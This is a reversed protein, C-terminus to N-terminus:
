FVIAFRTERNITLFPDCSRKPGLVFPLEQSDPLSQLSYPVYQILAARITSVISLIRPVRVQIPGQRIARGYRHGGVWIGM